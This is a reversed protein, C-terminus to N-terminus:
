PLAFPVAAGWANLGPASTTIWIEDGPGLPAPANAFTSLTGIQGTLVSTATGQVQQASWAGGNGKFKPTYTITGATPNAVKCYFQNPMLYEDAAVKYLLSDGSPLQPEYIADLGEFDNAIEFGAVYIVVTNAGTVWLEAGEDVLQPANLMAGAWNSAGPDGREVFHPSTAGTDLVEGDPVQYYKVVVAGGTPNFAGGSARALWTKKGAAATHVLTPNGDTLVTRTMTPVGFPVITPAISGSVIPGSTSPITTSGGGTPAEAAISGDPQITLVDGNSAGSLDVTTANVVLVTQDAQDPDSVIEVKYDARPDPM